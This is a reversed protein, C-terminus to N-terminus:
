YLNLSMEKVKDLGEVDNHTSIARNYKSYYDNAVECMVDFSQSIKWIMGAACWKYAKDEQSYQLAHGNIDERYNNVCFNNENLTAMAKEVIVKKEKKTM